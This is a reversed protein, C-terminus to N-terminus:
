ELERAVRFGVGGSRYVELSSGFGPGFNRSASRIMAPPNGWDGGRLMRWSCARTGSMRALKGTLQLESDQEFAHGDSPASAYSVFCDKVWELTNGIMDHLGFANPPFAMVPSTYGWRDLGQQASSCCTEAGYNAREHSADTGWPYPTSAGARAAYEWEAESLLRYRANTRQSVWSAYDQADQWTVCVVPHTDDQPFDLDLWSKDPNPRNRTTGGSWSCGPSVSRKTAAVFAAWEGRTVPFKGAAFRRVTVTRQPGELEDRGAETIPSGMQFSGAPVIVM